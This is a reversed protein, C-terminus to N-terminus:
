QKIFRFVRNDQTRLTYVGDALEQVSIDAEFTTQQGVLVGCMDYIKIRTPQDIGELRVFTSAPNPYLYLQDAEPSSEDISVPEEVKTTKIIFGYEVVFGEPDAWSSIDLLYSGAEYPRIITEGTGTLLLTDIIEETEGDLVALALDHDPVTQISVQLNVEETLEFRYADFDAEYPADTAQHTVYGTYSQNYNVHYATAYDDPEDLALINHYTQGPLETHVELLDITESDYLFTEAKLDYFNKIQASWFNVVGDGPEGIDDGEARGIITAFDLDDFLPKENLGIIKEGIVGNCNVDPNYFDNFFSDDMYDNSEVGGYLFVGSNGSYTYSTRLDRVADSQEDVAFNIFDLIAGGSTNSGGHPTGSSIYKAVHHTEDPWLEPNQLYQRAALGGMSHGFLIVKDKGSVELIEQVASAVAYGQKVIAAQNSLLPNSEGGLPQGQQDVNFNITYLDAPGPIQHFAQMEYYSEAYINAFSNNGDMNLHYRLQGGYSWGNEVATAVFDTWTDASSGLGHILVVPYPLRTNGVAESQIPGTPLVPGHYSTDAKLRRIEALQDEVAPSLTTPSLQQGSTV